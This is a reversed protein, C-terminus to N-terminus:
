LYFSVDVEGQDIVYFNDGEDGSLFLCIIYHCCLVSSFIQTMESNWKLTDRECFSFIIEVCFNELQCYSILCTFKIVYFLFIAVYYIFFIWHIVDGDAAIRDWEFLVSTM